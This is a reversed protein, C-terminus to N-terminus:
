QTRLPRKPPRAECEECISAGQSRRGGPMLVGCSACLLPEDDDSEDVVAHAAAPEPPAKKLVSGPRVRRKGGARRLAERAAAFIDLYSLGPDAALIQDYSKGAAIKELIRRAQPSLPM